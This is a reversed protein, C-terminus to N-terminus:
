LGYKDCLVEIAENGENWRTLEEPTLNTRVAQYVDGLSRPLTTVRVEPARELAVRALELRDKVTWYHADSDDLSVDAFNFLKVHASFRSEIMDFAEQNLM